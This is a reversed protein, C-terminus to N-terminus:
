AVPDWLSDQGVTAKKKELEGGCRLPQPELLMTRTPCLAQFNAINEHFNASEGEIKKRPAPPPTPIRGSSDTDSVVSM